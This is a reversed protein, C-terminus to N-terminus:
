EGKRKMLQFQEEIDGKQEDNLQPCVYPHNRYDEEQLMDDGEEENEEEDIEDDSGESELRIEDEDSEDALSDNIRMTWQDERTYFSELYRKLHKLKDDTLFNVLKELSSMM